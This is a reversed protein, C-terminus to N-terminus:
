QRFEFFVSNVWCEVPRESPFKVSLNQESHNKFQSTSWDGCIYVILEDLVIRARHWNIELLHVITFLDNYRSGLSFKSHYLYGWRMFLELWTINVLLRFKWVSAFRHSEALQRQRHVTLRAVASLVRRADSRYSCNRWPFHFRNLDMSVYTKM